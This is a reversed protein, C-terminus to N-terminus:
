QRFYFVLYDYLGQVGEVFQVQSAKDGLATIVTRIQAISPPRLTWVVVQRATGSDIATRMQGVLRTLAEGTRPLSYKAEILLDRAGDKTRLLFDIVRRSNAALVEVEEDVREIEQFDQSVISIIRRAIDQAYRGVANFFAGVAAGGAAFASRANVGVNKVYTAAVETVEGITMNGSPDRHNIPDAGAYLYKHLSLPEEGMGERPDM